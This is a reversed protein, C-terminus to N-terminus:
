RGTGTQADTVGAPVINLFVDLDTVRMVRLVRAGVHTLTLEGGKDVLLHHGEVLATLGACDLFALGSLDVHIHKRGANVHHGLVASFLDVSCLDLEGCLRLTARHGHELHVDILFGDTSATL